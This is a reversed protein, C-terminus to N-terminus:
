WSAWGGLRVGAYAAMRGARGVGDAEMMALFFDDAMKRSWGEPKTRYIHDHIISARLMANTFYVVGRLRDPISPGDTVFGEWVIIEGGDWTVKLPNLLQASRKTGLIPRLAPMDSFVINRFETM